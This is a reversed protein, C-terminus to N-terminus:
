LASRPSCPPLRADFKLTTHHPSRTHTCVCAGNLLSGHHPARRNPYCAPAPTCDPFNDATFSLPATIALIAAAMADNAPADHLTNPSASGASLTPEDCLLSGPM